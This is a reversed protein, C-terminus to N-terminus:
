EPGRRVQEHRAFAPPPCGAVEATRAELRQEPDPSECLDLSGPGGTLRSLGPAPLTDLYLSPRIEM